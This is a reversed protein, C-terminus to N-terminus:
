TVPLALFLSQCPARVASKPADPPAQGGLIDMAAALNGRMTKAAGTIFAAHVGLAALFVQTRAHNWREDLWPGALERRDGSQCWTAEPVKGDWQGHADTLLAPAHALLREAQEARATAMAVRGAADLAAHRARAADADASAAREEAVAVAAALPEDETHWRRIARGLTFLIEWGGPK